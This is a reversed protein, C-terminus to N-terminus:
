CKHSLRETKKPHQEAVEVAHVLEAQVLQEVALSLPLHSLTVLCAETQLVSGTVRSVVAAEGAGWVRLYVYTCVDILHWLFTLSFTSKYIQTHTHTHVPSSDLNNHCRCRQCQSDTSRCWQRREQFICGWPWSALPTEQRQDVKYKYLHTTNGM